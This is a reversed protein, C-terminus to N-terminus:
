AADVEMETSNEDDTGIDNNDDRDTGKGDEGNPDTM